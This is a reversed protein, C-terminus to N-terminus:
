PQFRTRSPGWTSVDREQLKRINLMDDSGERLDLLNDNLRVWNFGEPGAFDTNEVLPSIDSINNSELYIRDLNPLNRLASIDAILNSTLELVEISNINAIPTIDTIRNRVLNLEIITNYQSLGALGSIDNLLNQEASFLRLNTLRSLDPISRIQNEDLIVIVLNDLTSISSMDSIQNKTLNLNDLSRLNSLSSVDSIQNNVLNLSELTQLNSVASIDTIRNNAAGFNKLSTNGELGDLRTLDNNTLDIIILNDLEELNPLATIDNNDLYLGVLNELNKVPEINVINNGSLTLTELESLNELGSVDTIVNESMELFRLNTLQSVDSLDAISNNSLDLRELSELGVLNSVDTIELSNNVKLWELNKAYQLGNLDSVNFLFLSKFELMNVQYIPQETYSSYLRRGISNKLTQDTFEVGGSNPYISISCEDIFGQQTELDEQAYLSVFGSAPNEPVVGTILVSGYSNSPGNIARDRRVGNFSYSMSAYRNTSKFKCEFVFAQGSLKRLTEANFRQEVCTNGITELAKGSVSDDTPVISGGCGINWDVPQNNADFSEFSANTLLNGESPPPPSLVDDLTLSCEDIVIEANSYISVFGSSANPATGTIEILQFSDSQPIVISVPAGDFFISMSAYGGTNKAYCAYTYQKNALSSLDNSSLSQDVCVGGSLSIGKGSRGATSSYSGGCGKTWNAPKSNADLTEFAGNELLNDGSSPPSPPPPPTDATTLSCQDITLNGNSYVSVFGTSAQPATGKIEVLQYSSNVPIQKSTPQDDFFISFSAYGGTNKAYCSYTFEGGSVAAIDSASLGQDACVGGTLLLGRGSKGALSTASGGCGISWETPLNNALTEFEGNQLLNNGNSPPPPPPEAELMLSCNDVVAPNESFLWMSAYKTNAPATFKVDYRAYDSGTIITAPVDVDIATWSSDAFGLGMGTWGSGSLVKAYCSLILDDGASVEASRYFCNDPIVELAGSGEFADGSTKIAGASCATWGELRSEFGSNDFLNGSSINVAQPELAQPIIFQEQVNIPHARAVEGNEIVEITNTTQCAGLLLLAFVVAVVALIKKM